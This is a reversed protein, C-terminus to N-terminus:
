SAVLWISNFNRNCYGLSSPQILLYSFAMKGPLIQINGEKIGLYYRSIARTGALAIYSINGQM